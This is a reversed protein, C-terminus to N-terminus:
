KALKKMVAAIPKASAALDKWPDAKKLLKASTPITFKQPDLKATLEKWELPVAITAGERARPSWPAVGTSTKDNRLYDVFIKGGRAKKAITTTYRAPDDAELQVAVAKAFAKAQPWDAGKIAIVVHLGKGGTTKVFPKFGLKELRKKLEKAGEVVAAFKVDPAPDLDFIVREPTEPDGPKSGWPHIETVGQQALAVLGEASDVGLYPKAEGKVKIALMPAATGKLEHRQFFQEGEIGEPTRVVSSPRDKVHPLMKGAAAAMYKALDLKTVAPGLRSKPWLEKDPHSIRIGLVIGNNGSTKARPKAKAAMKEEKPADVPVERVVAGAPKDLRLGKFAAQRFLGDSTVNEFEIEGVLKPEVWNVDPLRPPANSFPSTKRALPKLRKLLEGTVKADYGTGVRGMYVLKGNQYTGVLLSRFKGPTGRWAGIVVEQGGRCKSKTWNDGRGSMYPADLRKSIVGELDMRCAADLMADGSSAFHPVFVVRGSKGLHKLLGELGQKRAELDEGRLDTGDAFLCDFVYYILGGTKRDSLATQLLGFDSAGEKNLACIEGDIIGDPLKACAAAIEPFRQTWDLGKRTLLKAKGKEVRAQMRYGDFKVEHVWGAGSPPHARLRALQPAIFGPMKM